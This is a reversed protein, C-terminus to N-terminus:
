RIAKRAFGHTGGPGAVRASGLSKVLEGHGPAIQSVTRGIQAPGIVGGPRVPIMLPRRWARPIQVMHAWDTMHPDDQTVQAM